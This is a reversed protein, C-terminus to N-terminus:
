KAILVSDRHNLTNTNKVLLSYVGMTNEQRRVGIEKRRYEGGIEMRGSEGGDYLRCTEDNFCEWGDYLM